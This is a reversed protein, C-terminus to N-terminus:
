KKRVEIPNNIAERFEKPNMVSSYEEVKGNTTVKFFPQLLTEKENWNKPQISFLFGGDPLKSGTNIISDKHKKLIIDRATKYEM